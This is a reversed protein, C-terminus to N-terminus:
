QERFEGIPLWGFWSTRTSRFLMFGPKPNNSPTEETFTPGNEHIRNRTRRSAHLTPQLTIKRVQTM